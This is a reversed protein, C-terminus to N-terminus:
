KVDKYKNAVRVRNMERNIVANLRAFDVNEGAKARVLQEEANKRAAEAREIDIETAREIHDALIYIENNGRVELFGGSMAFPHEGDKDKIKL